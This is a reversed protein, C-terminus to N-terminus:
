PLLKKLPATRLLRQSREGRGTPPAPPPRDFGTRLKTSPPPRFGQKSEGGGQGEGQPSPFIARERGSRVPSGHLEIAYPNEPCFRSAIQNINQEVRHTTREFVSVGALVFYRQSPDAVSGSEDLYLLHMILGRLCFCAAHYRGTSLPYAPCSDPGSAGCLPRRERSPYRIKLFIVGNDLFQTPHALWLAAAAGRLGLKM